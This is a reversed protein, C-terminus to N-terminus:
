MDMVPIRVSLIPRGCLDSIGELPLVTRCQVPDRRLNEFLMSLHGTEVTGPIKCSEPLLDIRLASQPLQPMQVAQFIHTLIQVPIVASDVIRIETHSLDYVFQLFQPIIFVSCNNHRRIVSLIHSLKSSIGLVAARIIGHRSDGKDDLPRSADPSSLLNASKMVIQIQNRSKQFKHSRLSYMKRVFPFHLLYQPIIILFYKDFHHHVLIVARAKRVTNKVSRLLSSIIQYHGAGGMGYLPAYPKAIIEVDAGIVVSVTQKRLIHEKIQPLIGVLCLIQRFFHRFFKVLSSVKQFM